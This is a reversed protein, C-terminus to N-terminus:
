DIDMIDLRGNYLFRKIKRTSTKIFEDREIGIRSVRQYSALKEMHKRVESELLTRFTEIIENKADETIEELIVEERFSIEEKKAYEILNEYDPVIVVGVDEGVLGQTKYGMVISEAIFQSQNIENEVLDPYVNKGGRTVIVDKARGTIFIYGDEDIKGLDGTYFWGDKIVLETQGPNKYYGKMVNDGQTIIEGIGEDDPNVIKVKVGHVPIGISGIKIAGIPNVSVVPSTETLGYGELFEIGLGVFGEIIAPDMPAAGSVMIRVKGGIKKKLARGIIKKGGHNFVFSKIKSAQIQRLIGKYIKSYLLPVGVFITPQCEMILRTRDRSMIDVFSVSGGTSMPLAMCVTFPFAHHLPLLLLFNDTETVDIVKTISNVNSIINKHTLMVGKATGTTGSTYIISAIDTVSKEAFLTTFEEPKKSGTERLEDYSLFRKYSISKHGNTAVEKGKGDGKHDHKITINRDFIVINKLDNCNSLIRSIVDYCKMSCIITEAESHKLIHGTEVEGLAADIPVAIAGTTLTALYCVFWEPRNESMIAVKSDPKAGTKILGRATVNVANKLESYTIQEWVQDQYYRLAIQEPFREASERFSGDITNM